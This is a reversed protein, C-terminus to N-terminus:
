FMPQANVRPMPQGELNEQIHTDAGACLLITTTCASAPRSYTHV